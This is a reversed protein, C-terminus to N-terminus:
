RGTPFEALWRRVREVFAARYRAVSFLHDAGRLLAVDFGGPAVSPGLIEAMQRESNFGSYYTGTFVFLLRAGRRAARAIDNRFTERSPFERQYVGLPADGDPAGGPAAGPARALGRVLRRALRGGFRRWRALQLYRV